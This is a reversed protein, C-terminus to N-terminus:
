SGSPAAHSRVPEPLRCHREQSTLPAASCRVCTVDRFLFGCIIAFLISIAYHTLMLMPNRYLNKFSRGSLIALQTGWSARRYGRVAAAPLEAEGQVTATPDRLAQAEESAAFADVLSRVAPGLAPPTPSSPRSSTLRSVWSETPKGDHGNAKPGGNGLEADRNSPAHDADRRAATAAQVDEMTLDILFDALNYGPPCPHDHAAFYEACSRAAGSYVTRGQALVVLRDFLAVIDSRPQHITMVVTRQYDRALAVLTEVVNHANYADLGSTPEDLYLISPSTVLECAISVRRKEGGSLARRGAEGIRSDRIGLLGLEQMTELTRLRKAEYSMDRPLRLLASNLVTEYVTLTGMLTDEQDVFGVLRRYISEDTVPRGNVSVTCSSVGRKARRGLLDLLSSKGAGSAGIVAMVEGARVSGSADVLVQRGAVTYSMNAFHLSAPVHKSTLSDEDDAPLALHGRSRQTRGLYWGVARDNPAVYRRRM